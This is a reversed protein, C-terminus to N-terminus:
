VESDSPTFYCYGIKYSRQGKVVFRNGSVVSICSVLDEAKRPKHSSVSEHLSVIDEAKRPKHSSISEHLSVLDEAKRPIV